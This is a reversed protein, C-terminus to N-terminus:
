PDRVPFPIVEATAVQSRKRKRKRVVDDGFFSRMTSDDIESYLADELIAAANIIDRRMRKAEYTECWLSVGCAHAHHEQLEYAEVRRAVQRAYALVMRERLIREERITMHDARGKGICPM